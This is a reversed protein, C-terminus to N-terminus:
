SANYYDAGYAAYAGYRGGYGYQRMGKPDIQSLALGTVPTGGQDFLRIGHQVQSRATQDWNVVYIIADAAGAIVRADPVVLVPPTDIIIVDYLDRVQAMFARFKESSFIDAANTTSKEGIIVDAGIQDSFQVVDAVQRAGSLVSLLGGRAEDLDFYQSFVRRRIDGELLLVKKGMGTFNQALAIANTTKGEGPLSSTVMIVQPPADVNSLLVSTRLNRVAEAAASTPKDALYRIVGARTDRVPVRPIQGMVTHGTAAELEEATRFGTHLVERLLIAAASLVFGILGALVMLRGKRPSSPQRPVAAQSLFRSDAEQIGAQVATEKLRGLFYEYILRSAEAERQLQQLAVLDDSQREFEDNLKAVSDRLSEQQLQARSVDQRARQLLLDYRTLFLDGDGSRAHVRRLDADGAVELMRAADGGALAAELAALRAEAETRTEGMNEFRERAEKLQRNLGELAEVSILDTGSTFSKVEAEATELDIKLEGVRESLWSTAQETAEFKVDLQSRIYIEGLRNALHASKDPKSTVFTITFVYSQRENKVTLVDLVRDVTADILPQGTLPPEPARGLAADKWAGLPIAPDPRLDPNFEPDRTLNEEIVLREVLGRSRLVAVETNISAQDGALGSVVSEFDVVTEQRSELVVVSQATFKRAAFHSAYLWGLFVCFLTALLILWKGRWLTFILALIDVDDATGVEQAPMQAGTRGPHRTMDM